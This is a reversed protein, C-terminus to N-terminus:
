REEGDGAVGRDWGPIQVIYYAADNPPTDAIPHPNTPAEPLHTFGSIFVVGLLLATALLGRDMHCLRRKYGWFYRKLIRLTGIMAVAFLIVLIIATGLGIGLFQDIRSEELRSSFWFDRWVDFFNGFILDGIVIGILVVLADLRGIVTAAAATGPCYGGTVMGIGMLFGGVVMPMVYTPVFYFQSLDILGLGVLGWLGLMGTIIASFMVVPVDLDKLYFIGAIKRSDTFGSRQLLYGFAVGLGFALFASQGSTIIGQKALPGVPMLDIM